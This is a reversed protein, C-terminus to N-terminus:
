PAPVRLFAWVSRPLSADGHSSSRPLEDHGAAGALRQDVGRRGPMLALRGITTQEPSSSPASPTTQISAVTQAYVEASTHFDSLLGGIYWGAAISRKTTGLVAPLCQFRMACGNSSAHQVVFSMTTGALGVGFRPM